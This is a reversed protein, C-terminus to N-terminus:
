TPPLLMLFTGSITQGQGDVFTFTQRTFQDGNVYLRQFSGYNAQTGYNLVSDALDGGALAAQVGSAMSASTLTQALVKANTVSSGGLARTIVSSDALPDSGITRAKINQGNINTVNINDANITGAVIFDATIGQNITAAMTFPGDYGNASAAWGAWNWRWVYQAQAPDPHDAVYIEDPMGDGDTDLLRVSGGKAGLIEATAAAIAADRTLHYDSTPNNLSKIIQTVQSQIRPTVTSLMVQNKEPHYPYIIRQVVTLVVDTKQRTDDILHVKAFLPLAMWGFDDPLVSALDIVNLDYSREPKSIEDLKKLAAQYLSASDTYRDDEWFVNVTQNNYSKNEVYFQHDPNAPYLTVGDKGRAYLRTGFGTSKGKYNNERLNLSRSIYVGNDPGNDMNILTVVNNVNDYRYALGPFYTRCLKAFELKNTAWSYAFTVRGTIGSNDVCTWNNPFYVTHPNNAYLESLSMNDVDYKAPITPVNSVWTPNIKVANDWRTLDLVAKIRATKDNADIAKVTYRAKSTLDSEEVIQTEERIMKYNQDRISIEFYLEDQGDAMEKVYYDTYPIPTVLTEGTSYSHSNVISLM